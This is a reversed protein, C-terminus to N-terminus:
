SLLLKATATATRRWRMARRAVMAHSRWVRLRPRTRSGTIPVKLCHRTRSNNWDPITIQSTDLLNSFARISASEWLQERPEGIAAYSTSDWSHMGPSPAMCM